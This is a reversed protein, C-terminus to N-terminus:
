LLYIQPVTRVKCPIEQPAMNFFWVYTYVALMCSCLSLQVLSKLYFYWRIRRGCWFM